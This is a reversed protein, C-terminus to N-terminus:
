AAADAPPDGEGAWPYRQRQAATYGLNRVTPCREVDAPARYYTGFVIDFFPSTIGFNGKENHFHHLMHSRRLLRGFSSGPEAVMHVFGHTYEYTILLWVGLAVAIGAGPAGAVLWGIPLSVVLVLPITFLPPGLFQRPDNPHMHHSYHLYRWLRATVPNKYALQSHFAFRHILYELLALVFLTVALALIMPVTLGFTLVAALTLIVAVLVDLRVPGQSFFSRTYRWTTMRPPPSAPRGPRAILLETMARLMIRAPDSANLWIL